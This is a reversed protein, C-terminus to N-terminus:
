PYCESCSSNDNCIHLRSEPNFIFQRLTEASEFAEQCVENSQHDIYGWESIVSDGVPVYVIDKAGTEKLVVERLMEFRHDVNLGRSQKLYTLCYSAKTAADFYNEVGWGFEGACIEVLGDDNLHIADVVFNGSAISISHSSSSNTEFAQHRVVRRKM